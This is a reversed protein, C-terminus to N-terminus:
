GVQGSTECIMIRRRHRPVASDTVTAQLDGGEGLDDLTAMSQMYSLYESFRGDITASFSAAVVNVGERFGSAARKTSVASLVLDGDTDDYARLQGFRCLREIIQYASEGRMVREILARCCVM